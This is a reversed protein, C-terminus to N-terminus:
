KYVVRTNCIHDHLARKERDFAAIIFGILCTLYGLIKALYRGCARAYTIPAGDATVVRLGCTMKGPTAGYKGLFFVEYGLSIATQALFLVFHLETFEANPNPGFAAFFNLGAAVYMMANVFSLILGDILIAGFRIWFGGYQLSAITGASLSGEKAKQLFAPRCSACVSVSGYQTVRDRIFVQNCEACVAENAGVAPASEAVAADESRTREKAQAYPMWNVMGERWVRTGSRVKGSIVLSQIEADSIPGTPKGADEYFWSIAKEEPAPGDAIAPPPSAGSTKAQRYSQWNALGERWVLTEPALKGSRVMEDLQAETIPGAQKGSEAYYWNM